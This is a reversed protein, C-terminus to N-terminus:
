KKAKKDTKENKKKMKEVYKVYRARIDDSVEEPKKDSDALSKLRDRLPAEVGFSDLNFDDDNWWAEGDKVVTPPKKERIM